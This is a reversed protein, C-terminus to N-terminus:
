EVQANNRGVYDRYVRICKDLGPVLKFIRDHHFSSAQVRLWECVGVEGEDSSKFWCSGHITKTLSVSLIHCPTSRWCLLVFVCLACTVYSAKRDNWQSSRSWGGTTQAVRAVSGLIVKLRCRPKEDKGKKGLKTFLIRHANVNQIHWWPWSMGGDKM